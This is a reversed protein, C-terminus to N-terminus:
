ENLINEMKIKKKKIKYVFTLVEAVARYLDRPVYEGLKVNKYLNRALPINEVLPVDHAKAVERIKLALFDVGKAVVQPSAMRKIDYRLAVSVHTPNTVVVDAKPIKQMMRKQSMEKQINKIRQKIEPNGEQEKRERKSEEKTMMLRKQYTFKQYSFDIAAVIFLGVIVFFIIKVLVDKGHSMGQSFDMHLYGTFRSIEDQMFFYAISFIFLFKLFGNFAEIVSRMTFLKKVGLIPNIREWKLNLVEPAYLFGIQAINSIVSICITAVFIPATCLLVTSVSRGIINSFMKPEFARSFDVFYLWEIFKSLVEYMYASSLTLALLSASLVLVNTLERSSAVEGRKRFEEIRHQTPEETKDADTNQYEEAM